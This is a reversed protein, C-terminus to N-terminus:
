RGGGLVLSGINSLRTADYLDAAMSLVREIVRNRPTDKDLGLQRRAAELLQPNSEYKSRVMNLYRERAKEPPLPNRMRLMDLDNQALTRLLTTFTKTYEVPAGLKKLSVAAYASAVSVMDVYGRDSAFYNAKELLKENATRFDERIYKALMEPKLVENPFIWAAGFAIASDIALAKKRVDAADIVAQFGKDPGVPVKVKKKQGGEEITIEQM